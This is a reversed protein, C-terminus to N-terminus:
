APVSKQPAAAQDIAAQLGGAADVWEGIRSLIGGLTDGNDESAAFRVKQWKNGTKFHLRVAPVYRTEGTTGKLLCISSELELYVGNPDIRM